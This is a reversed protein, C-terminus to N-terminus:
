LAAVLRGEGREDRAMLRQHQTHGPAIHAVPGDGLLDHLLGREAHEVPKVAELPRPESFVQIKRM